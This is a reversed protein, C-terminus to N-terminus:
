TPRSFTLEVTFEVPLASSPPSISLDFLQLQLVPPVQDPLALFSSYVVPLAFSHAIQFSVAPYCVKPLEVGVAFVSIAIVVRTVELTIEEATETQGGGWGRPNFLGLAYPGIIIGTV